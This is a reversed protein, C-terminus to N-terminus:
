RRAPQRVVKIERYGTVQLQEYVRSAAVTIAERASDTLGHWPTCENAQMMGSEILAADLEDSILRAFEKITESYEM